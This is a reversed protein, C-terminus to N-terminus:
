HQNNRQVGPSCGGCSLRTRDIRLARTPHGCGPCPVAEISETLSDWVVELRGAPQDRQVIAASILLKPQHVMMMSVLKISVRIASKQRLEAIRLLQEREIADRRAAAREATADPDAGRAVQDQAESRLQAYYATMRAVQKEVRGSWDRRRANALAAVTGVVAGRAVRYGAMSGDHRVEALNSEPETSLRDSALLADLHRVERLYHLDIGVPLIEEEKQDSAFTAQFWFVAQPFKMARVREVTFAAGPPLVIARGLRSELDYPRLNLGIRYM